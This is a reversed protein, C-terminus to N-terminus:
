MLPCAYRDYRPTIEVYNPTDEGDSTQYLTYRHHYGQHSLRYLHPNWPWYLWGYLNTMATNMWRATFVTNHCLEHIADGFHGYVIGHCYLALVMLLWNAQSFAYYATGGTLAVVLLFGLSQCLGRFNSRKTFRALDDKSIDVRVWPVDTHKWETLPNWSPTTKM